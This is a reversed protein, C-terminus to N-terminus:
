ACLQRRRNEKRWASIKTGKQDRSPGGKRDRGGSETQPIRSKEKLHQEFAVEELDKRDGM